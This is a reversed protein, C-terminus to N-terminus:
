WKGDPPWKNEEIWLLILTLFIVVAASASVTALWALLGLVVAALCIVGVVVIADKFAELANGWNM